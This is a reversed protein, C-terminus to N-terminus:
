AAANWRVAFSNNALVHMERKTVRNNELYDMFSEVDSLSNLTTIQWDSTRRDPFVTEVSVSSLTDAGPSGLGVEGFPSVTAADAVPRTTTIMVAVVTTTAALAFMAIAVLLIGTM